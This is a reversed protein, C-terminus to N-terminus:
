ICPTDCVNAGTSCTWRGTAKRCSVPQNNTTCQGCSSVAAPRKKKAKMGKKKKKTSKKAKSAKSPAPKAAKSAPAEKPTVAETAPTDAKPTAAEPAPSEAAPAAAKPEAGAPPEAAQALFCFLALGLAPLVTRSFRRCGSTEFM